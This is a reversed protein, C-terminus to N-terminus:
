FVVVFAIAKRSKPRVRASIRFPFRAAVAMGTVFTMACNNRYPVETINSEKGSAVNLMVLKLMSDDEKDRALLCITFPDQDAEFDNEITGTETTTTLVSVFM